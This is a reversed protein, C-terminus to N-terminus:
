WCWEQAHAFDDHIINLFLAPVLARLSHLVCTERFTTKSLQCTTKAQLVGCGLEKQVGSTALHGETTAPVIPMSLHERDMDAHYSNALFLWYYRM